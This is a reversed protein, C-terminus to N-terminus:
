TSPLSECYACIKPSRLNWYRLCDRSKRLSSSAQRDQRVRETPEGQRQRNPLETCFGSSVAFCIADRSTNQLPRSSMPRPISEGDVSLDRSYSTIKEKSPPHKNEKFCNPKKPTPEM